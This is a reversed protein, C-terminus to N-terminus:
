ICTYRHLCNNGERPRQLPKCSYYKYLNYLIILKFIYTATAPTVSTLSYLKSMQECLVLGKVKRLTTYVVICGDCYLNLILIVAIYCSNPEHIRFCLVFSQLYNKNVNKYKRRIKVFFIMVMNFNMRIYCVIPVFKLWFKFILWQYVYQAHFIPIM